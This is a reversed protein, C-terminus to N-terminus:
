RLGEVLYLHSLSRFYSYAYAKGDPIVKFVVISNLGAADAPLIDRWKEEAGSALDIRVIRAPLATGRGRRVYVSRDGPGWGLVTDADQTVGPIPIAATGGSELSCIYFRDEPGRALIRKGDQSVAGGRYGDPLIARPKGGAADIVYTRLDHGPERANMLIRRGDPSWQAGTVQFGEPSLIRSEGAGTPYSVLRRDGTPHVVALIQKGDPSMTQASGEGLRVAASGDVRRLYASYGPGGGEGAESFLVTQGDSSLDAFLSWDLWTLDVENSPDSGAIVGIQNSDQTLLVRGERSVDHLTLSGTVSALARHGGSPTAAHLTRNSGVQAATYWVERGDPSWALGWASAYVASITTKKGSLDVIAVSGGDDNVAPHDLFESTRGPKHSESM